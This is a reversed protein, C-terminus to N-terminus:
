GYGMGLVSPGPDQDQASMFADDEGVEFPSTRSDLPDDVEPLFLSLDAVNFTASM